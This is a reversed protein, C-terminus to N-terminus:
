YSPEYEPELEWDEYEFIEEFGKAGTRLADAGHCAANHLPRRLFGGNKEDEQKRYNDLRNISFDRYQRGHAIQANSNVIRM